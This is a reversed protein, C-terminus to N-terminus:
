SSGLALVVGAIRDHPPRRWLEVAGAGVLAAIAPAMAVAYYSHIIGSMLSFVVAHVVLWGGWLLYAARTPRHAPGRGRCLGVVLGVLSAPLLWAIQGGFQDNFMRLLGPM